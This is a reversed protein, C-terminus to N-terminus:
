IKWAKPYKLCKRHTPSKPSGGVRRIIITLSRGADGGALYRPRPTSKRGNDDSMIGGPRYEEWFSVSRGRFNELCRAVRQFKRSLIELDDLIFIQLIEFGLFGRRNFDGGRSLTPGPGIDVWLHYSNRRRMLKRLEWSEFLRCLNCSKAYYYVLAFVSGISTVAAAAAV